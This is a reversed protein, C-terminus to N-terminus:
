SDSAVLLKQGPQIFQSPSLNNLRRLVEVSIGYRKGIRYLTEGPRVEHYRKKAQLRIKKQTPSPTVKATVSIINKQLQYVKQNLDNLQEKLSNNTQLISEQFGREQEELSSITDEINHLLMLREEFQKLRAQISALEKKSVEQEISSLFTFLIILLIIGAGMLIMTNLRRKSRHSSRPRNEKDGYILSDEKSFEFDVDNLERAAKAKELGKKIKSM